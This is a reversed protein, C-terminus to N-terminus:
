KHKGYYESYKSYVKNLREAGNFIIGTVRDAGLLNVARKVEDRPTNRARVVLFIADAYKSLLVADSLPALPPSDILIWDFLGALNELMTPLLASQLLESPSGKAEGAKLLYVPVPDVRRIVSLPSVGDQLCEALGPGSSLGFMNCFAPRHLDSEVLLVSSKGRETLVTALNAAVTSKGDMPLPSTVLVTKIQSVRKRDRLAMWLLRFRDAALGRPEDIMALRCEPSVVAREIPIQALVAKRDGQELNKRIPTVPSEHNVSEPRIPSDPIVILQKEQSVIRDRGYKSRAFM